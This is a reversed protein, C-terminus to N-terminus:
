AKAGGRAEQEALQETGMGALDSGRKDEGATGEVHGFCCDAINPHVRFGPSPM